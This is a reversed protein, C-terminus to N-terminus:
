RSNHTSYIYNHMKYNIFMPHINDSLRYGVKYTSVISQWNGNYTGKGEDSHLQKRSPV